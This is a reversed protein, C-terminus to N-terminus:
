DDGFVGEVLKYGGYGLGGVVGAVGSGEAALGLPNIKYGHTFPFTMGKLPNLKAYTEAAAEELYRGLHTHQYSFQMADRLLGPKKPTVLRHVTEHRLTEALDKPALNPQILIDGSTTTEGFVGPRLPVSDDYPSSSTQARAGVRGGVGGTVGGLLLDAAMGAPNFVDDGHLGRNTMGGLVNGVGGTVAGRLFPSTAALRASSGVFLGGAAGVVGTAGGILGSVAVEGWDVEGTTFKQVATSGGMSLLAGGIMAAGLPGGVGTAMVAIGGVILAGAAIYEWNDGVWDTTKDWANRGLEDRYASLEADTVPRQGLPDAHGLPDNGAYHYRNGSWATGPVASLPDPSLFARTGPHYVRDRLWTVGAFEAEGGFGLGVETRAPAGFPDRAAGPTGQWDPALPESGRAWPQGPGVVPHGGLWCLAGYQGGDWLLSQGAVVALEGLADVSVATTREGADVASLRGFHDWRYRRSEGERVRRGSGDYEYPTDNRSSLQGAADYTYTATGAPSTERILRGAADYAFGSPGAAVLQGAPDYRFTLEAGDVRAAMIRGAADRTLQASRDNFRYGTLEGDTYQWTAHIRASDAGVMRGDADRHIAIPGTAQNRLGTVLGGDDFAYTTETGDPYQLATREGDPGYRWRLVLGDRRREVLRGARDWRLRHRYSEPEDIEVPRGLADRAVTVAPADGAAMAVVRGSVDYSWRIERGAGDVRAIPRGAADYRYTTDRGLPDTEAVVRGVEDYRRTTVAGLPDTVSALWGRPHYEYRTRGGLPDVAETLHGALDYGFRRVGGGADTTEVVRGALDYAFRTKGRAVLRGGPDYEFTVSGQAILAGDADYRFDTRRGAGDIRATLRGAPDYEFATERGGPSVARRVRGGPTYEIRTVGGAPDEIMTRRGCRDYGARAATGDPRVHAVARGLEDFAFESGTLGDGLATVRGAEDVTATHRTGVPDISAVLNGVVDYEHLWTAGAPDTIATPRSLADYAYDWKAGDAAVLRAVNGLEDYVRSSSRGLPDVTAEAMGHPGYRTERRAGAPDTVATVRGAASHEYRWVGGAPDRREVLRGLDDYDFTSRRGLPTHTAVVRGVADREMLASNGLGDTCTLISGDADFTFALTVGDPDTIRHVLGDRVELRTVGGEADVLESPSREAGEYRYRSTAGTSATVELVRGADDYVTTFASGGPLVRRTPRSREDWEVTTVAGNRDTVSVPNGWQDYTRSLREGHGDIVTLLRGHDDHLYTNTIEDDGAVTVRGPLYAFRTLHGFRSTQTRVRGGEDYTNRAEVVGDADSVEVIRADDIRYRRDGATILVGDAYGYELVRGDYALAATIRDGTWALTVSRGGTHRLGTLRGDSYSLRIRTGPGSDLTVPRGAGDFAWRRGDFWHLELGGPVVHVLAPLGMVRGYGSGQRGFVARQGDPGEYVAGDERAWLRADAWSSWGPGFAGAARSRSNYTRRWGLGAALAAAPLDTEAFLFNGSATNVPDDAYGSTAPFGFAVPDDFTVSERGGALGTARLSAEIAADPLRAPAGDGGAARFAAAIQAVWRADVENLDIYRGFAVILSDADFQGWRSGSRFEDYAGRLRSAHTRLEDDASRSGRAFTDLDDPRASSTGM